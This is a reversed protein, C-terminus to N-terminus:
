ARELYSVKGDEVICYLLGDIPSVNEMIRNSGDTKKLTTVRNKEDIKTVAWDGDYNRVVVGIKVHEPITTSEVCRVVDPDFGEKDALQNIFYNLKHWHQEVFSSHTKVEGVVSDFIIKPVQYDDVIYTFTNSAKKFLDVDCLRAEGLIDMWKSAADTVTCNNKRKVGAGKEIFERLTAITGDRNYKKALIKEARGKNLVSLKSLDIIAM